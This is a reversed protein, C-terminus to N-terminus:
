VSSSRNTSLVRIWKELTQWDNWKRTKRLCARILEPEEWPIDHYATTLFTSQPNRLWEQPFLAITRNETVKHTEPIPKGSVVASLAAPLNHGAGLALHGVQTARPNMEILYPTGTEKELLFDFGDIGSLNLRRVLKEIAMTIGADEIVRLVSAPGNVYQKNVVEFHLAALVEGKWCAVLSTADRGSIFEQANVVARRRQLAPRIWRMDHDILARKAVRIWHLGKQLSRFVRLAEPLSHVIKVGEGGSSGDAKLVFPFGMQSVWTELDGVDALAATKPVRIGEQRAIEMLSNRGQIIPYSEPSGISREILECVRRGVEGNGTERFHLDQLHKNALDDGPIILDPNSSQIARLVSELPSLGDYDYTARVARLKRLVSRAPCVADM